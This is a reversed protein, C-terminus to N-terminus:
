RQPACEAKFTAPQGPLPPAKPSILRIACNHVQFSLTKKRVDDADVLVRWFHPDPSRFFGVVGVHSTEKAVTQELKLAQGPLLVIEERSILENGFLEMDTKGSNIAEFTLRGFANRSSLQYVRLVVSLPKGNADVNLLHDASGHIAMPKPGSCACLTCAGAIVLLFYKIKRVVKSPMIIKVRFIHALIIISRKLFILACTFKCERRAERGMRAGGAQHFM